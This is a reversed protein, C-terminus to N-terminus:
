KNKVIEILKKLCALEAEEFSTASDYYRHTPEKYFPIGDRGGVKDFYYSTSVSIVQIEYKNLFILPLLTFHGQIYDGKENITLKTFLNERFWRFAQQYLPIQCDLDNPFHVNVSDNEHHYQKKLCEEDFGLEKLELAQEYPIFEKNMPEKKLTAKFNYDVGGNENTTPEIGTGAFLEKFTKKKEM